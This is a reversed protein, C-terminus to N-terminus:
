EEDVWQDALSGIKPLRYRSLDGGYAGLFAQTRSDFLVTLSVGTNM